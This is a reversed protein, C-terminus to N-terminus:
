DKSIDQFSSQSRFFEIDKERTHRRILDAGERAVDSLPLCYTSRTAPSTFMVARPFHKTATTFPGWFGEFTVGALNCLIDCLEFELNPVLEKPPDFPFDRLLGNRVQGAIGSKDKLQHSGNRDTTTQEETTAGGKQTNKNQPAPREAPDVPSHPVNRQAM